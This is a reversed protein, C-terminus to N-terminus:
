FKFFKSSFNENNNNTKDINNNRIYEDNTKDNLEIDISEGAFLELADM